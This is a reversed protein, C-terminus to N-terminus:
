EEVVVWLKRVTEIIDWYGTWGKPLLVTDGAVCRQASGDANTLFFIGELVHFAETTPRPCAVPFSGPTCTWCGVATPGVDYVIKSATAPAGHTADSRVGLPTLYQPDLSNYPTIVARIPKSTEEINPHNVVVWVKHIDELVDWRGSWGKPLIVTDGPGFEHCFGDLDTLAGRGDFVFFVETTSRQAPSPWGGAACWWSGVSTTRKKVLPRTADHPQGVDANQRPGKAELQDLAFYSAPAHVFSVMSSTTGGSCNDEAPATSGTPSTITPPALAIPTSLTSLYDDSSSLSAMLTSCSSAAGDNSRQQHQHHHHGKTRPAGLNQLAASPSAFPLLLSVTSAIKMAVVTLRQRNGERCKLEEQKAAGM